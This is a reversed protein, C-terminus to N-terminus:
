PRARGRRARWRACSAATAVWCSSSTRAGPQLGMADSSPYAALARHKVVEGAPVLVKVGTEELISLIAPLTSETVAPERHTLLLVRKVPRAQTIRIPEASGLPARASM